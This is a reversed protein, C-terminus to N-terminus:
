VPGSGSREDTAAAALLRGCAICRVPAEPDDAAAAGAPAGALIHQVHDQTLALARAIRKQSWGRARLCHADHWHLLARAAPVRYEGAGLRQCIIAAAKVGVVRALKHDPKPQKPLHLRIGGLARAVAVAIELSTADAIEALIGPLSHRTIAPPATM